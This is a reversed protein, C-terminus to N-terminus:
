FFCLLTSKGGKESASFLIQGRKEFGFTGRSQFGARSGMTAYKDIFVLLSEELAPPTVKSTVGDFTLTERINGWFDNIKM